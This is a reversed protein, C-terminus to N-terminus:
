KKVFNKTPFNEVNRTANRVSHIDELVTWKGVVGKLRYTRIPKPEEPSSNLNEYELDGDKYEEILDGFKYGAEKIRFMVEFAELDATLEQITKSLVGIGEVVGMKQAQLDSKSDDLYLNLQEADMKAFPFFEYEVVTGKFDM